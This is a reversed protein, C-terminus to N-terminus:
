QAIYADYTDIVTQAQELVHEILEERIASYESYKKHNEILSSILDYYKKEM